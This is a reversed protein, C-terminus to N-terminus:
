FGGENMAHEKEECLCASNPIDLQEKSFGALTTEYKTKKEENAKGNGKRM